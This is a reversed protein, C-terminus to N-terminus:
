EAIQQVLDLDVTQQVPDPRYHELFETHKLERQYEPPTLYIPPYWLDLTAPHGARIYALQRHQEIEEIFMQNARNCNRHAFLLQDQIIYISSRTGATHIYRTYNPLQETLPQNYVVIDM